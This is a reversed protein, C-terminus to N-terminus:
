ATDTIGWVWSKLAQRVEDRESSTVWLPARQRLHDPLNPRLAECIDTMHRRATAPHCQCRKAVGENDRDLWLTVLTQIDPWRTM